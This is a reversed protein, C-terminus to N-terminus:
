PDHRWITIETANAGQLGGFRWHAAPYNYFQTVLQKAYFQSHNDLQLKQNSTFNWHSAYGQIAAAYDFFIPQVSSTVDVIGIGAYLTSYPAQAGWSLVGFPADPTLTATTNLFFNISGSPIQSPSAVPDVISLYGNRAGVSLVRLNWAPDASKTYLGFPGEVRGFVTTTFWIATLFLTALSFQKM